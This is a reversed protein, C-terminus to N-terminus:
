TPSEPRTTRVVLTGGVTGDITACWAEHKMARFQRVRLALEERDVAALTPLREDLLSGSVFFGDCPCGEVVVWDVSPRWDRLSAPLGCLPCPGKIGRLRRGRAQVRGADRVLRAARAQVERTRDVTELNVLELQRTHCWVHLIEGHEFVV